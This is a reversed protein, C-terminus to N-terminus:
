IPTTSLLITYLYILSALLSPICFVLICGVAWLWKEASLLQFISWLALGVGCVGLLGIYVYSLTLTSGVPFPSSYVVHRIHPYILMWGLLHVSVTGLVM